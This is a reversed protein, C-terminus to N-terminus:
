QFVGEAERALMVGKEAMMDAVHFVVLGQARELGADRVELAQEADPRFDNGEIQMRVVQRRAIRQLAGFPFSQLRDPHLMMVSVNGRAQRLMAQAALLGDDAHGKIACAVAEVTRDPAAFKENGIIVTKLARSMEIVHGQGAAICGRLM